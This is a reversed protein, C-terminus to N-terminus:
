FKIIQSRLFEAQEEGRGKYKYLDLYLQITSVLVLQGKEQSGFYVGEDFPKLLVVNAGTEVEKLGLKDALLEPDDAYAFVQTHRVFPAIRSAGSFLTLAYRMGLRRSEGAIALETGAVDKLSYFSFLVNLKYTYENRWADLLLGPNTLQIGARGGRAGSRNRNQGQRGLLDLEELRSVVKFAQGISISAQAALERLSWQRRPNLLLVRSVRSSKGKFIGKLRRESTYRNPNGKVEIFTDNRAILCNGSLDLFGVDEEVCVRRGDESIYPAIVVPYLTKDGQAATRLQKAAIRLNQPFGEAKVECIMRMVKKPRRVEVELMLDIPRGKLSIEKRLSLAPFLLNFDKLITRKVDGELM